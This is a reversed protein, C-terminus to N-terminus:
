HYGFYGDLFTFTESGVVTNLVEDIFPLSFIDKKTRVNLKRFDGYIVLKGNKKTTYGYNTIAM